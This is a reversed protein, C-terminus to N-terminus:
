KGTQDQKQQEEEILDLLNILRELDAILYNFGVHNAGEEHCLFVWDAHHVIREAATQCTRSRAMFISGIGEQRSQAIAYYSQTLKVKDLFLSQGTETIFRGYLEMACSRAFEWDGLQSSDINELFDAYTTFFWKGGDDLKQPRGMVDYVINVVELSYDESYFGLKDLGDTLRHITLALHLLRIILSDRDTIHLIEM